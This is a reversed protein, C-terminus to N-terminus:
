LFFVGHLFIYWSVVFHLNFNNDFYHSFLLTFLIDNMPTKIM